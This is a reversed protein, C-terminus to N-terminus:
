NSGFIREEDVKMEKEIQCVLTELEEISWVNLETAGSPRSLSTASLTPTTNGPTTVTTSPTAALTGTPLSPAVSGRGKGSAIRWKTDCSQFYGKESIWKGYLRFYSSPDDKACGKSALGDLIVVRTNDLIFNIIGEGKLKVVWALARSDSWPGMPVQDKSNALVAPLFFKQWDSLHGNHMLVRRCNGALWDLGEGPADITFPHTLEDSVGGISATRFHIAFPYPIKEDKLFKEIVKADSPLGKAFRTTHHERDVWAIGAGDRNSSAGRELEEMDPTNEHCVYIVCM